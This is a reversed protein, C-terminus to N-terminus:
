VYSVMSSTNRPTPFMPTSDLILDRHQDLESFYAMRQTLWNFISILKIICIAWLISVDPM